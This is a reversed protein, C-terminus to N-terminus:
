GGEGIQTQEVEGGIGDGVDGRECVGGGQLGQTKGIVVDM